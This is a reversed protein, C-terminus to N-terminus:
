SDEIKSNVKKALALSATLGPSAYCLVNALVGNNSSSVDIVFDKEGEILPRIGSYDPFLKEKDIDPWYIKVQDYFKDKERDDISYDIEYVEYASPGFRIGKGLDITAHVGLSDKYPIPYILHNLKEKGSYSYYDGKLLKLKFREEEYIENAIRAANLGACNILLKTEIIFEQSSNLDKILIEFYSQNSSISISQNGLLVVGGLDEFDNKLSNVYAHSDFIGTSPSFLAKQLNLFDYGIDGKHFDLDTVGCMLANNYIDHLKESEQLSTSVIYKGCKNYQINKKELYEYLLHKGEICLEAKLSNEEYYIGAHIVESNRSTTEEALKKNKEILFINKHYKALERGIALGAVGGGIVLCDIKYKDM